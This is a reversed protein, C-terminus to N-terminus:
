SWRLVMLFSESCHAHPVCVFLHVITRGGRNRLEHSLNELLRHSSSYTLRHDAFLSLFRVPLLSSRRKPPRIVLSYPSVPETVGNLVSHAIFPTNKCQLRRKKQFQLSFFSPISRPNGLSIIHIVVHNLSSCVTPQHDRAEIRSIIIVPDAFPSPPAM